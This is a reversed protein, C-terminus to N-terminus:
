QKRSSERLEKLEQMLWTLRDEMRHLHEQVDQIEQEARVNVEFDQEARLRDRKMERNQTMMIMPAQLAAICALLLNLFVYPYCDFAKFGFLGMNLLMYAGIALVFIIIFAWSGGFSAIKGAIRDGLGEGQRLEDNVNRAM